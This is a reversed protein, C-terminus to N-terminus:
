SKWFWPLRDRVQDELTTKDKMPIDPQVLGPLNLLDMLIFYHPWFHGPHWNYQRDFYGPALFTTFAPYTYSIESIVPEHKENYLFDYAMSEFGFKESIQFAIEIARKDLRDPNFDGIGSGSARFDNKRNQRVSGQARNGTIVIRTDYTNGPLFPQFLVYNKQREWLPYVDLGKFTRYARIATDHLLKKPTLSKFWASRTFPVRNPDIGRSFMRHVLKRAFRRHEVFLVNSSKSGVKLKFVLPYVASDVYALASERDFFVHSDIMPFGESKLLFYEKIKDDYHWSSNYEPFCKIKLRGEIVPMISRAIEKLDTVNNYHFIFLDLQQVKEWFDAENINLRVFPIHNHSLIKEYIQLPEPFKGYRFSHIGVLM